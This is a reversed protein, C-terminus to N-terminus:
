PKRYLTVRHGNAAFTRKALLGSEVMRNLKGRMADATVIIGMSAQKAIAEACTFEDATKPMEAIQELAWDLGSLAARTSQVLRGQNKNSAM